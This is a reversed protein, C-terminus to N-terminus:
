DILASFVEVGVTELYSDGEAESEGVVGGGFKPANGLGAGFAPFGVGFDDVDSLGDGGTLAEPLGLVDFVGNGGSNLTGLLANSANEVACCAESLGGDFFDLFHAIVGGEFLEHLHM